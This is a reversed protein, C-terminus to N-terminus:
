FGTSTGSGALRIESLFRRIAANVAGPNELPAMHGADPVVVLEARPMAETVRRMEEPPTIADHEGVILLAPVDIERLMATMDPREAMGRQAAAIARPDTRLIVQRVEDVLEPREDYTKPAFLKPLMAEAALSSGADLVADAMKFRAAAAEPTDAAARTDCLILARLRDAHKRWFQWAVYGGMSLGCFNVPETVGLADLLAALDDAFREMTVTGETVTSQGFGRLDPAIVRREDSLAEWQLRWMGHDLPFGHVWLLPPGSGRDVLSMEIDRAVITKM